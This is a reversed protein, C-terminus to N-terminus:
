LEGPMRWVMQCKEFCASQKDMTVLGKRGVKCLVPFFFFLALSCVLICVIGTEFYTKREWKEILFSICEVYKDPWVIHKTSFCQISVDSMWTFSVDNVNQKFHWIINISISCDLTEFLISRLCYCMKHIDSFSIYLVQWVIIYNWEIESLWPCRITTFTLLTTIM